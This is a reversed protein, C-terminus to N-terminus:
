LSSSRHIGTTSGFSDAGDWVAAFSANTMFCLARVVRDEARVVRDEARVVAVNLFGALIIAVGTGVFWMADMDFRDYSFPTFGIHLCRVAIILGTVIELLLRV